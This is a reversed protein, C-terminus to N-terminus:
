QNIQRLQQSFKQDMKEQESKSSRYYKGAMYASYFRYWDRKITYKRWKKKEASDMDLSNVYNM